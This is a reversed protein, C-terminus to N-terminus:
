DLKGNETSDVDEYPNEHIGFRDRNACTVWPQEKVFERAFSFDGDSSYIFRHSVGIQGSNEHDAMEPTFPVPSLRGDLAQLPHYKTRDYMYLIFFPSLPYVIYDDDPLSPEGLLSSIFVKDLVFGTNDGSKILVPHDSTLFTRGSENKGIIWIREQLCRVREQVLADDWLLSAHLSNQEDTTEPLRPAEAYGDILRGITQMLTNRAEITRLMQLCIFQAMLYRNVDPIVLQHSHQLQIFWDSMINAAENEVGSLQYELHVPDLGHEKLTPVRYFHNVCAINDTRALFVSGNSKDFVSVRRNQNEFRRLYFQPVYHHSKPTSM